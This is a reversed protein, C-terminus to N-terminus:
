IFLISYFLFLWTSVKVKDNNEKYNNINTINQYLIIFKLKFKIIIFLSIVIFIILFFFLLIFSPSKVYIIQVYKESLRGIIIIIQQM